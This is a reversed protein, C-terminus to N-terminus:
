SHLFLRLQSKLFTKFWDLKYNKKLTYKASLVVFDILYRYMYGTNSLKITIWSEREMNIYFGEWIGAKISDTRWVFGSYM